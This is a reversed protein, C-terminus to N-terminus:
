AYKRLANLVHKSCGSKNMTFRGTRVAHYGGVGSSDTGWISGPSTMPILSLIWYYEIDAQSYADMDGPTIEKHIKIVDNCIESFEFTWGKENCAQIFDQVVKQNKSLKM